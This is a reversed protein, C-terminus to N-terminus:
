SNLISSSAIVVALILSSLTVNALNPPPANGVSIVTALALITSPVTTLASMLLLAAIAPVLIEGSKPECFIAVVPVTSPLSTDASPVFNSVISVLALSSWVAASILVSTSLAVSLLTNVSASWLL